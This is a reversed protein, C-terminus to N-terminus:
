LSGCAVRSNYVVVLITTPGIICNVHTVGVSLDHHFVKLIMLNWMGICVSPSDQVYISVSLNLDILIDSLHYKSRSSIIYWVYMSFSFSLYVCTDIRCTSLLKTTLHHYCTVMVHHCDSIIITITYSCM